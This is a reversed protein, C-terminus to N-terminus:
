NNMLLHNYLFIKNSDIISKKKNRYILRYSISIIILLVYFIFIFKGLKIGLNRNKNQDIPKNKINKSYISFLM